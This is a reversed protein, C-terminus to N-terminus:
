SFAGNFNRGSTWFRPLFIKKCAFDLIQALFISLDASRQLQLILFDSLIESQIWLSTLFIKLIWRDRPRKCTCTNIVVFFFINNKKRVSRFIIEARLYNGIGNFYKQNHMVECLPKDFIKDELSDLINSRFEKYEFMPDPGRNKSWEDTLEWRGFRFFFLLIFLM